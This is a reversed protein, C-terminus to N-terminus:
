KKKGAKETDKVARDRVWRVASTLSSVVREEHLIAHDGSEAQWERMENVLVHMMEHVVYRELQDDDVEACLPMNFTISAESYQWTVHTFAAVSAGDHGDETTAEGTRDWNFHMLWWRLGLEDGWWRVLRQLRRKLERFERDNM